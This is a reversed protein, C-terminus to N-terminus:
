NIGASKQERISNGLITENRTRSIACIGNVAWVYPRQHVRNGAFIDCGYSVANVEM